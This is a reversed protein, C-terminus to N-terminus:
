CNSFLGMGGVVETMASSIMAYALRLQQLAGALESPLKTLKAHHWGFVLLGDAVNESNLLRDVSNEPETIGGYELGGGASSV